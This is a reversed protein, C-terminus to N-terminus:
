ASRNHATRDLMDGRNNDLLADFLPLNSRDCYSKEFANRANKSYQKMLDPSESLIELRDVFHDIDGSRLSEGCEFKTIALDVSGGPPGLYVVPLGVAMSAHLKSPSMCGLMNDKLSIFSCHSYDRIEQLEQANVYGKFNINTLREENIIRQVDFSQVGGGTMVIEISSGKELLRRAASLLAEFCHGHGMNGSYLLTFPSLFTKAMGGGKLTPFESLSEWNPIVSIPIHRANPRSELLKQMADDLCVVHSLQSGIMRNVCKWFRDIIGNKRIMGARVVVEPYCDMNWLIVRSTRHIFKHLVGVGAILPPTTLCVVVDQKPLRAIAFCALVYFALYDLCRHIMTRKGSKPTWLRHVNLNARLCKAAKIAQSDNGDNADESSHGSGLYGHGGIVTVDDGLTARHQALSAALRATPSVDPPYFQNVITIKLTSAEPSECSLTGKRQM